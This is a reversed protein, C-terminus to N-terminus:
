CQRVSIHLAKELLSMTQIPAYTARFGRYVKWLQDHMELHLSGMSSWVTLSAPKQESCLSSHGQWRQKCKEFVLKVPWLVIKWKAMTWKLYVKDWLCSCCKQIYSVDPKKKAQYFMHPYGPSHLNQFHEQLSRWFLIRKTKLATSSTADHARPGLASKQGQASIQDYQTRYITSYELDTFNWTNKIKSIAGNNSSVNKKLNTFRERDKSRLSM